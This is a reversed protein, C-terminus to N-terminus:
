GDVGTTTPHALCTYFPEHIGDSRRCPARGSLGGKPEKPPNRDVLWSGWIDPKLKNPLDSAVPYIDRM